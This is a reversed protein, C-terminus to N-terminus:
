YQWWRFTAYSGDPATSATSLANYEDFELRAEEAFSSDNKGASILSVSRDDNKYAYRVNNGTVNLATIPNTKQPQFEEDRYDYRCIERIFNGNEDFCLVLAMDTLYADNNIVAASVYLKDDTDLVINRFEAKGDYGLDAADIYYKVRNNSDIGYIREYNDCVATLEGQRSYYTPLSIKAKTLSGFNCVPMILKVVLATVGITLMIIGFKINRFLSKRKEKM